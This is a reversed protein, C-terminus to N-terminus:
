GQDGGRAPRSEMCEQRLGVPTCLILPPAAVDRKLQRPAGVLGDLLKAPRMAGVLHRCRQVADKRHRHAPLVAKGGGGGLHILCHCRRM